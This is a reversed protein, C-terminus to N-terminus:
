FAKEKLVKRKAWNILLFLWDSGTEYISVDAFFDWFRYQTHIGPIGAM